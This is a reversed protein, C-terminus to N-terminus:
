KEREPIAQDFTPDPFVKTGTQIIACIVIINQDNNSVIASKRYQCGPRTLLQSCVKTRWLPVIGTSFVEEVLLVM